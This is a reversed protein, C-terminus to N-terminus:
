CALKQEAKNIERTESHAFRVFNRNATMYPDGQRCDFLELVKLFIM